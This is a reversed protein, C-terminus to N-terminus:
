KQSINLKPNIEQSVASIITTFRGGQQKIEQEIKLNKDKLKKSIEDITKRINEEALDGYKKERGRLQLEIKVKDGGNLFKVGQNVRLERDHDGIRNSIKITKIEADKQKAKAKRELKERQYKFSGYDMFKGIPPEAKPSVEVLDLDRTGAEEIAKQRSMLGLNEGDEDVIMLEPAFIKENIRFEKILNPKPKRGRYSKRV